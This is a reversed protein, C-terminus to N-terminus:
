QTAALVCNKMLVNMMLGDCEGKFTVKMGKQLKSATENDDFYCQVERFMEDGELTVYIKDLIDKKIAVVRGSVYFTKGKFNNDANVENALYAATLQKASITNNKIEELEKEKEAKAISDKQAESIEPKKPIDSSAITEAQPQTTNNSKATKKTDTTAAFLIFFLLTLGGYIRSSKRRTTVNKSWFLSSKPSVLGIILFVFSIFFLFAFLGNM